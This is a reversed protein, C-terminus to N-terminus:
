RGRRSREDTVTTATARYRRARRLARQVQPGDRQEPPLPWLGPISPPNRPPDPPTDRRDMRRVTATPRLRGSVVTVERAGLDWVELSGSWRSGRTRIGNDALVARTVWPTLVGAVTGLGVVFGVPVGVLAGVWGALGFGVVAGLVAPGFIVALVVVVGSCAM